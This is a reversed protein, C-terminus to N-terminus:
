GTQAAMLCSWKGRGQGKPCGVLNDNGLGLRNELDAAGDRWARSSNDWILAEGVSQEGQRKPTWLVGLTESFLGFPPCQAVSLSEFVDFGQLVSPFGM